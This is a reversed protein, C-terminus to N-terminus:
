KNNAAALLGAMATGAGIAQSAHSVGADQNISNQATYTNGWQKNPNIAAAYKALLDYPAQQYFNWRNSADALQAQDQAQLVGGVKNLEGLLGIPQQIANTYNAFGLNAANNGWQGQNTLLDSAIGARQNNIANTMKIASLRNANQNDFANAFASNVVDSKGQAFTNDAINQSFGYKNQIQDRVGGFADEVQQVSSSITNQLTPDSLNQYMFKNIGPATDALNNNSLYGSLAPTVQNTIQSYPNNAGTMLDRVTNSTYNMLNQTGPSNVYQNVGNVHSIQEPTLNTVQSWPTYQQPGQAYLKAAQAYGEKIYPQAPGWPNVTESSASPSQTRPGESSGGLFGKYPRHQKLSELRM